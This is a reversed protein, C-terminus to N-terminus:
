ERVVEGQTTFTRAEGDLQHTHPPEETVVPVNEIVIEKGWAPRPKIQERVEDPNPRLILDLTAPPDDPDILRDADRWMAQRRWVYTEAPDAVGAAERKWEPLPALENGRTM